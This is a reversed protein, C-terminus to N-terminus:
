NKARVAGRNTCVGYCPVEDYHRTSTRVDEANPLADAWFRAM